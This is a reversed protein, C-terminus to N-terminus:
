NEQTVPDNWILRALRWTGDDGKRVVSLYNGGNSNTIGEYEWVLETLGWLVGMNGQGEVGTVTNELHTVTTPSGDTPFWWERIAATGIVPDAGHHPLLIADDTLTAMVANADNALWADVYAQRAAKVADLDARSLGNDSSCASLAALVLTTLALTIFKIM